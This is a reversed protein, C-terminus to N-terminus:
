RGVTPTHSESGDTDERHSVQLGVGGRSTLSIVVDEVSRIYESAHKGSQRLRTRQELLGADTLLGLKRYSTSLPLDCTESVENATLATESTETLIARCDPDDLADLLLQVDSDGTISELDTSGQELTSVTVALLSDLLERVTGEDVVAQTNELSQGFARVSGSATSSQAM